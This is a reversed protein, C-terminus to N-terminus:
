AGGRPPSLRGTLHSVIAILAVAATETRLTNPGLSVARYGLARAQAVEDDDFGGEPGVAVTVDGCGPGIGLADSALDVGGPHAMLRASGDPAAGLGQKLECLPLLEPFLARGSQRGAQAIIEAWRDAKAAAQRPRSVSRKCIVPVVRDVGLETAKQLVMETRRARSLGYVLTLRSEPPTAPALREEVHAVAETRSVKQLTALWRAGSGDVLEVREGVALRLVHSLYHHPPGAIRITEGRLAGGPLVLRRIGLRRM